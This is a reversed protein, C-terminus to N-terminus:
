VEWTSDDVQTTSKARTTAVRLIQGALPNLIGQEAMYYKWTLIGVLGYPDAKDVKGPPIFSVSPVGIGKAHSIRAVYGKGVAPCRIIQDSSDVTGAAGISVNEDEIVRCGFVSGIKAKEFKDEGRQQGKLAIDQFTADTRLDGAVEPSILVDYEGGSRPKASRMRLNTYITNFSEAAVRHSPNDAGLTM